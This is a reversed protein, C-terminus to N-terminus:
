KILKSFHRVIPMLGVGGREAWFKGTEFEEKNKAFVADPYFVRVLSYAEEDPIKGGEMQRMSLHLYSPEMKDELSLNVTVKRSLNVFAKLEGAHKKLIEPIPPAPREMWGDDFITPSLTLYDNINM